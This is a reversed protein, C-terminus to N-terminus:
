VYGTIFYYWNGFIKSYGQNRLGIGEKIEGSYYAIGDDYGNKEKVPHLLFNIENGRKSVEKYHLKKFIVELSDMVAKDKIYIPTEKYKSDFQVIKIQNDAIYCRINGPEKELYEAAIKFTDANKRFTSEIEGKTLNLNVFTNLSLVIVNFAMLGIITYIMTKIVIAKDKIHLKFNRKAGIVIFTILSIIVAAVCMFFVPSEFYDKLVRYQLLIITELTIFFSFLIFAYRYM